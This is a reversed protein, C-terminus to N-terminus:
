QRVDQQVRFRGQRITRPQEDSSTRREFEYYYNGAPIADSELDVVGAYGIVNAEDTLTCAVDVLKTGDREKKVTFYIKQGSLYWQSGFNFTISGAPMYDGRVVSIPTGVTEAILNQFVGASLNGLISVTTAADEIDQSYTKISWGTDASNAASFKCVIRDHNLEAATMVISYVGTTGIEAASAAVSLSTWAGSDKYYCADTVTEGSKFLEPSDKDIMPFLLEYGENKKIHVDGLAFGWSLALALFVISWKKKM